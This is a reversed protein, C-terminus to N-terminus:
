AGARTADPAAADFHALCTEIEAGGRVLDSEIAARAAAADRQRLAAIVARHADFGGYAPSVQEHFLKLIPGMSLWLMEIQRVLIPRASLAYVGFHFARNLRAVRDNVGESWATEYDAEISALHAIQDDTAHEAALGAAMGELAMRIMRLERYREMTVDPVVAFRGARLELAHEGTLRRCAERVPTISTGLRNALDQMLLRAGPRFGGSILEERLALYAQESLSAAHIPRM